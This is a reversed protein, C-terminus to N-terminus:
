LYVETALDIKKNKIGYRPMIRLGGMNKSDGNEVEFRGFDQFIYRRRYKGIRWGTNALVCVPGINPYTGEGTNLLDGVPIPWIAKLIIQLCTLYIHILYIKSYEIASIEYLIGYM